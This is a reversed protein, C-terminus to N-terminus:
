SARRKLRTRDAHDSVPKQATEDEIYALRALRLLSSAMQSKIQTEEILYEIILVIPDSPNPPYKLLTHQKM